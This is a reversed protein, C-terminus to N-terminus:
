EDDSDHDSIGLQTHWSHIIEDLHGCAARMDDDPLDDRRQLFPEVARIM